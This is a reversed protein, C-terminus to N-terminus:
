LQYGEEKKCWCNACKKQNKDRLLMATNLFPRESQLITGIAKIWDCRRNLAPIRWAQLGQSRVIPLYQQEVEFLTEIHDSPFSLPIFLVHTRGFTKISQCITHTYPKIWSGKGFKSQYALLHKAKPFKRRIAEFSRECEQQYIDGTCIFRQPLGHASFLLLSEEEPIQNQQLFERITEQKAQIYSPHTAYSLVWRFRQIFFAPVHHLFWHACSGTTAYSFQPFLPFVDVIKPNLALLKDLSDQHTAPLYRHFTLVSCGLEEELLARIAETDEFIPSKGGIKKYDATIKKARQKAIRTFLYRHLFPPLHTRIVEQDCLLERLFPTVEELSRPGGFNVLLILKEQKM